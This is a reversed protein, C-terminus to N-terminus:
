LERYALRTQETHARMWDAVNEHGKPLKYLVIACNNIIHLAYRVTRAKEGIRGLAQGVTERRGFLRGVRTVMCGEADVLYVVTQGVGGWGALVDDDWRQIRGALANRRRVWLELFPFEIYIADLNSLPDKPAQAQTM